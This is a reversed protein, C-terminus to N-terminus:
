THQSGASEQELLDDFQATSLNLSAACVQRALGTRASQTLVHSWSTTWNLAPLILHRAITPESRLHGAAQLDGLIGDLLDRYKRAGPRMRERAKPSLRNWERIWVRHVHRLEGHVVELHATALSLFRVLPGSPVHSLADLAWEYGDAIGKRIIAELLDDKTAFHYFLTGSAVDLALAIERITTRDFGQRAFLVSASRVFDDARSKDPNGKSRDRVM